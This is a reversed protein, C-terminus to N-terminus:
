VRRRPAIPGVALVRTGEFLWLAHLYAFLQSFWSAGLRWWTLSLGPRAMYRVIFATMAFSLAHALWALGWLRLYDRRYTAHFAFLLAALVLAMAVQTLLSMTMLLRHAETM